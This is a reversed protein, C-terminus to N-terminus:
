QIYGAPRLTPSEASDILKFHTRYSTGSRTRIRELATVSAVFHQEKNSQPIETGIPLVDLQVTVLQIASLPDVKALQIVVNNRADSAADATSDAVAGANAGKLM